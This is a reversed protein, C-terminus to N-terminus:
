FRIATRLRLAPNSFECQRRARRTSRPLRSARRTIPAPPCRQGAAAEARLVIGSLALRGKDIDPVEIFQSASGFQESTADRLVVRMQYAGPKKVAVHVSYVM